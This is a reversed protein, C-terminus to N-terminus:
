RENHNRSLFVFEAVDGNDYFEYRNTRVIYEKDKFRIQTGEFLTIPGNLKISGLSKGTAFDIFRYERM